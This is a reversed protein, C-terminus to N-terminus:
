NVLTALFTTFWGRQWWSQRHVKSFWDPRSRCSATWYRLGPNRGITPSILGFTVTELFGPDRRFRERSRPRKRRPHVAAVSGRYPKWRAASMYACSNGNGEGEARYNNHRQRPLKRRAWIRLYFSIQLNRFQGCKGVLWSTNLTKILDFNHGHSCNLRPKM